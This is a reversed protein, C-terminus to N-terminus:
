GDTKREGYSCFDDAEMHIRKKDCWNFDKDWHKCDRCRVVEVANVSLADAARRLLGQFQEFPKCYVTIEKCFVEINHPKDYQCIPPTRDAMECLEEILRQETAM